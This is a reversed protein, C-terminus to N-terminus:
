LTLSVFQVGGKKLIIHLFIVADVSLSSCENQLRTDLLRLSFDPVGGILYPASEDTADDM